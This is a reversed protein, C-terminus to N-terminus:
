STYLLEYREPHLYIKTFDVITGDDAYTSNEVVNIPMNEPLNFYQNLHNDILQAKIIHNQHTITIDKVDHFFDFKSKNLFSMSLEPFRNVSIVSVEYLFVLDDAKRVREIYYVKEEANLNLITQVEIDAERLEFTIVDSTVKKGLIKLQHEFGLISPASTTKPASVRTGSGQVRVLYGKAVLNDTAKRVTVRSVQYTEALAHETPIKEGYQIEHKLIKSLLDSEIVKYQAMKKTM